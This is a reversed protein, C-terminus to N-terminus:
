SLCELLRVPVSSTSVAYLVAGAGVFTSYTEGPALIFGNTVDVTVGGLYIIQMGDNRIHLERRFSDGDVLISPSSTVMVQSSVTVGAQQLFFEGQVDSREYVGLGVVIVIEVTSPSENEIRFGDVPKDFRIFDGQRMELVSDGSIIKIASGAEKIFVFRTLGPIETGSAATLTRPIDRM